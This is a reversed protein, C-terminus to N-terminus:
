GTASGIGLDRDKGLQEVMRITTGTLRLSVPPGSAGFPRDGEGLVTPFV